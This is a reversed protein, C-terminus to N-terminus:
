NENKCVLEVEKILDVFRGMNEKVALDYKKELSQDSGFNYGSSKPTYSFRSSIKKSYIFCGDLDSLNYDFDLEYDIKSIAQNKQVSKKTQTEEVSIIIKYRPEKSLGFYQSSYRNLATLDKGSTIFLTKNVLPNTAKNPNKYVFEIGSCSTLILLLIFILINKYIM